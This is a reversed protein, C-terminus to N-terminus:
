KLYKLSSKNSLNKIYDIFMQIEEDPQVKKFFDFTVYFSRKFKSATIMFKVEISKSTSNQYVKVNTIAIKQNLNNFDFGLQKFDSTFTLMEGFQSDKAKKGEEIMTELFSVAASAGKFNLNLKKDKSIIKMDTQFASPVAWFFEKIEGPKYYKGSFVMSYINYNIDDITKGSSIKTLVNLIVIIFILKISFIKM